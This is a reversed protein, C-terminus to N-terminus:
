QIVIVMGRALDDREVRVLGPGSFLADDVNAAASESSGWTGRVLTVPEGTGADEVYLKHVVAEVGEAAYVGGVTLGSRQLTITHKKGAGHALVPEDVDNGDSDLGQYGASALALVAGGRVVFDCDTACGHMPWGKSASNHYLYGMRLYSPYGLSLIGANVVLTEQIGRQDGALGLIGGGAKVLDNATTVPVWIM